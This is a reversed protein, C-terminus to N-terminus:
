PCSDPILDHNADAATGEIVDVIDQVGNGNCDPGSARDLLVFITPSGLYVLGNARVATQGFVTQSGSGAALDGTAVTAGLVGAANAHGLPVIPLLASRLTLWTGHFPPSFLHAPSLSGLAYVSDSAAGAFTVSWTSADSGVLPGAATTRAPGPYPTVTFAAGTFTGGSPGQTGGFGGSGGTVTSGIYTFNANFQFLADGGAGGSGIPPQFFQAGGVGGFISCNSAFVTSQDITGGSGGNAPQCESGGGRGGELTCDYLALNAGIAELGSGGAGPPHCHCDDTSDFDGGTGGTLTCASFAVRPSAQVRAAALGATPPMGCFGFAGDSGRLNCAQVRVFGACSQVDLAPMSAATAALTLGSLVVRKSSALGTVSVVGDITVSNLTAAAVVLTKNGVSFGPYAGPGILIVAGDPAAAIAAQVDPFNATGTPEVIRVGGAIAPFCLLVISIWTPLAHSRM